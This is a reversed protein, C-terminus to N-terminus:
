HLCIPEVHEAGRTDQGALPQAQVCPAPMGTLHPQFLAEPTMFCERGLNIVQICDSTKFKGSEFSRKENRGHVFQVLWGCELAPMKRPKGPAKGVSDCRATQSSM